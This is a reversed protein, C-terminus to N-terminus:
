REVERRLNRLQLRLVVLSLGFWGLQQARDSLAVRNTHRIATRDGHPALRITSEYPLGRGGGDWALRHPREARTTRLFATVAPLGPGRRQRYRYLAGQGPRGEVLEVQDVLPCWLPDNRSDLLFDYVHEASARVSGTVTVQDM